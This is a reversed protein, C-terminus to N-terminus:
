SAMSGWFDTLMEAGRAPDEVMWWHGLGELVETRARAREAARRRMDNSGVLHDEAALISLGPRAAAAELNRGMEAVVPHAASRYLTLIARGMEEGQGAALREAVPRDIGHEVLGAARQEATGGM